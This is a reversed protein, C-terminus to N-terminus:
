NRELTHELKVHDLTQDIRWSHVSNWHYILVKNQKLLRFCGAHHIEARRINTYLAIHWSVQLLMGHLWVHQISNFSLDSENTKRGTQVYKWLFFGFSYPWMEYFSVLYLLVLLYTHDLVEANRAMFWEPSPFDSFSAFQLWWASLWTKETRRSGFAEPEVFRSSKFLERGSRSNLRFCFYLSLNHNRSLSFSVNM